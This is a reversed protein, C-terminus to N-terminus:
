YRHAGHPGYIVTYQLALIDNDENSAQDRTYQLRLRGFESTDFELLASAAFPSHGLDDLSSGVLLAGPSDGNLGALRLGASWRPMFQYVGQAYWGTRTLSIPAGNFDGDETGYFLESSLTLNRTTTNGGPAWKYVFTAIGLDSNGSFLDAGTERGDARTHLYSLSALYSSSLSFDGGTRAFLSYAGVGNNASGAAPFSDGRFAEAGFELYQDTPAIWRVQVGDDGLQGNLFAKYPLPADSFSWDHAHRENIYGISSLFRGAKVTVGGGLATTRIYAEELSVDNEAGLSFDLFAAMSQDVNATFSVESEGLSLGRAPGTVEDGTSFGSIGDGGPDRSAVTAFGNLVAAIGPNFANAAAPAGSASAMQPAPIRDVPEAQALAAAQATATAAEQRASAADAEAKALRSELDGIKAEYDHRLTEVDKRLANLDQPTQAEAFGTASVLAMAAGAGAAYRYFQV